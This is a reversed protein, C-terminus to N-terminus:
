DLNKPMHFGIKLIVNNGLPHHLSFPCSPSKNNWFTWHVTLDGTLGKSATGLQIRNHQKIKRLPRRLLKIGVPYCTPVTPLDRISFKCGKQSLYVLKQNQIGYRALTKCSQLISNIQIHSSRFSLILYAHMLRPLM